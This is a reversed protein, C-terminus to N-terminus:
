FGSKGFGKRIENSDINSGAATRKMLQLQEWKRRRRARQPELQLMPTQNVSETAIRQLKLITRM